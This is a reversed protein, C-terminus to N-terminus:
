EIGESVDDEEYLNKIAKKIALLIVDTEIDQIIYEIFKTGGDEFSSNAIDYLSKSPLTINIEMSIEADRKKSKSMLIYVPDNKDIKNEKIEKENVDPQINSQQEIEKSEKVDEYKPLSLDQTPSGVNEFTSNLKTIKPPILKIVKQKNSPKTQGSNGSIEANVIDEVSPIEYKVGTEADTEIRTKNSEPEKFRWCNKPNDIEAMLKGTLDHQNIPAVLTENIRTNDKFSIYFENDEKVIKDFIVIEGRREGVIWQFYRNNNM